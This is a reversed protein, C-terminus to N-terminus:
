LPKRAVALVNKGAVRHTFTDIAKSIPFAFRDYAVLGSLSVDGSKSGILKYALTAFVGLFDAYRCTHVDFGAGSLKHRLEAKTYRRFHKVKEDMSSYLIPMAPVYIVCFSGPKLVRYIEEIAAIDDEIHELVNLSYAFDVAQDALDASQIFTEFGKKGIEAAQQEDPEICLVNRGERSVRQAFFGTGAGFDLLSGTEPANKEILSTLFENYNIAYSMIDLNDKGTYDFNQM